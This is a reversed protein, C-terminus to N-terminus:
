MSGDYYGPDRAVTFSPLEHPKLHDALVTRCTLAFRLHDEAVVKHELYKQVDYGDMIVIDGHGLTVTVLDPTSANKPASKMGYKAAIEKRKAQRGTGHHQQLEQWAQVRTRHKEAPLVGSTVPAEDMLQGSQTVGYYYKAKMRMHMKADGGLSLTAVEPGLGQEGDDHYEIKQGQMYGLVLEENFDIEDASRRLMTRAAWNLRYRCDQVAKPAAEFPRSAVSAVFKYPMGFNVSFAMMLDGPNVGKPLEGGNSEDPEEIPEPATTRVGKKMAKSKRAPKKSGKSTVFVRRELGFDHAQLEALMDDPSLALEEPSSSPAENGDTILLDAVSLTARHGARVRRDAAMHILSGNIGEFTYRSIKYGYKYQIELRTGPGEMARSLTPAFSSANHLQPATVPHHKPEYQFGCGRTECEWRTFRRRQTCGWCLPCAIGRTNISTVNDGIVMGVDPVPPRLVAPPQNEDGWPAARSLLYAPHFNLDDDRTPADQSGIKWFSGCKANLCMWSQLYVQPFTKGCEDCARRLLPGAFSTHVPHDSDKPAHWAPRQQGLRELRYKVTVVTRNKQMTKETWVEVPKYWDLVCYVHPMECVAGGNNKGFIVVVPNEHKINNLLSKTQNAEVSHDKKQTMGGSDNDKEMEGGARCIIVDPGMYERCKGVGDFLFSHVYKNKTYCGGQYAKFYPLTECISQRTEAWVMPKGRPEPKSGLPERATLQLSLAMLPTNIAALTNTATDSASAAPPSVPSPLRAANATLLPASPPHSWALTLQTSSSQVDAGVGASAKSTKKALTQRPKAARLWTSLVSPTDVYSTEEDSVKAAKGRNRAATSKKATPIDTEEGESPEEADELQRKRHNISSTQVTEDNIPGASESAPSTSPAKTKPQVLENLLRMPSKRARDSVRQATLTPFVTLSNQQPTPGTQEPAPATIEPVPAPSERAPTAHKTTTLEDPTAQEPVAATQTSALMLEMMTSQDVSQTPDPVTPSEARQWHTESPALSSLPSSFDSPFLAPYQATPNKHGAPTRPPDMNPGPDTPMQSM